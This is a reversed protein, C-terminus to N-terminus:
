REAKVFTAIAVAVAPDVPISADRYTAANAAPDSPAKRWLHNIGPIMVLKSGRNAAALLRADEVSVQIDTEGQVILMPLMTKSALAAPDHAMVDMLYPQVAPNFLPALPAPVSAPDVRQRRELRDIAADASAFMAPPLQPKLQARLVAGLPRGPAALLIVGCIGKPQQAAALAVLGGESHGALWVCRKGRKRLFAAWGHVDQAYDAITVANADAIATKSGFMGRKDIRLTAVGKAALQDALQRYIGGAVGAPNDGDRDTPGSGPILILAPANRAPDVLSGALPGSPGPIAVDISAAAAAALLIMSM